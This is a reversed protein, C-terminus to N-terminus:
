LKKHVGVEKLNMNCQKVVWLARHEFEVLLHCAKGFVLRYPSMGIQMKYAISYAWLADELKLCWNKRDPRVMKELILKIERNSVEAQGNSM